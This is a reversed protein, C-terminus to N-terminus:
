RGGEQIPDLATRAAANAWWWLLPILPIMSFGIARPSPPPPGFASTLYVIGLFGILSWFAPGLKRGRAFWWVAAAFLAGEVALTLPV